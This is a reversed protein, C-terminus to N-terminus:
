KIPSEHWFVGGSDVIKQVIQDKTLEQIIICRDSGMFEESGTEALSKHYCDGGCSWKAFCDQCYERHEVTQKRLKDLVSYNFAYGADQDSPKGYFFKDALENEESFVEYCASVNGDPSLSFGDQSVGCFHNTVTGIRAGSFTVNVNYGAAVDRAKRFNDIFGYSEASPENIYRGLQFAPEVQINKPNFNSCIFDISDVLSEIQEEVVTVRLQYVFKAEDFRRITHMVLESSGKGGDTIRYTDHVDPLGDYSLSCGDLNELFWDIKRDSLVGNTASYAKLDLELEKARNNAYEYSRTLVEWNVTPEGGGHFTLTFFSEGKNKANQSVFNIGRMAVDIGMTTVPTDGAMAYCYTCRLNCQTTLFLTLYTPEPEGSFTTSPVIEPDSDLIELARLFELVSTDIDNVEDSNGQEISVLANVTDTNGIFAARRLPAYVLHKGGDLPITFLEASIKPLM